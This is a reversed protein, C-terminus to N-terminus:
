INKTVKETNKCQKWWTERIAARRDSRRPATSVIILLSLKAREKKRKIRFRAYVPNENLREMKDPRNVWTSTNYQRSSAAIGGQTRYHHRFENSERFSKLTLILIFIIIFQVTTFVRVCSQRCSSSTTCRWHEPDEVKQM